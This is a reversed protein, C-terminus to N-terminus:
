AIFFIIVANLDDVAADYNKIETFTIARKLLAIKVLAKQVSVAETYSRIAEEYESLM